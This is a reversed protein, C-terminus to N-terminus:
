LRRGEQDIFDSVERKIEDMMQSDIRGTPNYINIEVTTGNGFGNELPRVEAGRPLRLREPGNEGVIFDGPRMTTGGTALGPVAALAAMGKALGVAGALAAAGAAAAGGFTIISMFAAAPALAQASAAGFAATTAAFSAFLTKSLAYNIAKQVMFEVLTAIMQKGLNKFAEGFNATGTMADTLMKSLGSSFQDRLKGVTPWFSEHAKKQTDLAFQVFESERQQQAMVAATKEDNWAMLMQRQAEIKSQEHLLTEQFDIANFDRRLQALQEEFPIQQEVIAQQLMLQDELVAAQAEKGGFMKQALSEGESFVSAGGGMFGAMATQFSKVREAIADGVSAAAAGPGGMVLNSLADNVEDKNALIANKLETIAGTAAQLGKIVTPNQTIFDGSKSLFEDWAKNLQDLAGSYGETGAKASGGFKDGVLEVLLALKQALPLSEDIKGVWRTLATFNGNAAKAFMESASILDTGTAASFDMVAQVMKKMEAPGINGVSILRQQVTNIAEDSFRSSRQFEEAMEQYHRSLEETFIGQNRLAANLRNVAEEQEVSAAIAQHMFGVVPAAAREILSIASNVETWAMTMSKATNKSQLDIKDLSTKLRSLADKDKLLLEIELARM